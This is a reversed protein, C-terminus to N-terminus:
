IPLFLTIVATIGLEEGVGGRINFIKIAYTLGM